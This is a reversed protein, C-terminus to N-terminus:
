WTLILRRLRIAAEYNIFTFAFPYFDQFFTCSTESNGIPYTQTKFLLKPKKRNANEEEIKNTKFTKKHFVIIGYCFTFRSLKLNYIKNLDLHFYRRNFCSLFLKWLKTLVRESTKKTSWKSVKFFNKKFRLLKIRSNQFFILYPLLLLFINVVVDCITGTIRSFVDFAWRKCSYFYLKLNSISEEVFCNYVLYFIKAM